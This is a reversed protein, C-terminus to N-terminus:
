KRTRKAITISSPRDIILAGVRAQNVANLAGKEADCRYEQKGRCTKATKQNGRALSKERNLM